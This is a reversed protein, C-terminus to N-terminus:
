QVWVFKFDFTIRESPLDQLKTATAESKISDGTFYRDRNDLIYNLCKGSIENFHINNSPNKPKFQGCYYYWKQEIDNYVAVVTGFGNNQVVDRLALVIDKELIM